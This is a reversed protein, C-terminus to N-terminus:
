NEKKAPKVTKMLRKLAQIEKESDDLYKKFWCRWEQTAIDGGGGSLMFRAGAEYAEIQARPGRRAAGAAMMEILGHIEAPRNMGPWERIQSLVAEVTMGEATATVCMQELDESPVSAQHAVQTLKRGRLEQRLRPSFGSLQHRVAAPQGELVAVNAAAADGITALTRNLVGADPIVRTVGLLFALKAQSLGNGITSNVLGKVSDDLTAALMDAFRDRLHGLYEAQHQESLGWPPQVPDHGSILVLLDLAARHAATIQRARRSVVYLEQRLASDRGHYLQIFLAGWAARSALVYDPRGLCLATALLALLARGNDVLPKIMKLDAPAPSSTMIEVFPDVWSPKAADWGQILLDLWSAGTPAPDVQTYGRILVMAAVEVADLMAARTQPLPGPKITRLVNVAQGRASPVNKAVEIVDALFADLLGAKLAAQVCAQARPVKEAQLVTDVLLRGIAPSWHPALLELDADAGHEVLYRALVALEEDGIRDRPWKTLVVRVQAPTAQGRRVAMTVAYPYDLRDLSDVISRSGDFRYKGADAALEALLGATGLTRQLRSVRDFYESAIQSAFVLREVAGCRIPQQGQGTFDSFVLRLGHATRNPTWTAVPLVGRCGYPLLSAIADLILLREHVAAPLKEGVLVVPGDLLAAAAQLLWPGGHVGDIFAALAAHDAAPLAAISAPGQPTGLEDVAAYLGGFCARAATVEDFGVDFFRSRTALRGTADRVETEPWELIALGFRSGHSASKFPSLAVWPLADTAGPKTDSPNGPILDRILRAYEDRRTGRSDDAIIDYDDYQGARKGRVAWRVALGNTSLPKM